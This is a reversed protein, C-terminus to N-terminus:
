RGEAVDRKLQEVTMAGMPRPAIYRTGMELPVYNVIISYGRGDRTPVPPTQLLQLLNGEETAPQEGPASRPQGYRNVNSGGRPANAHLQVAIESGQEARNYVRQDLRQAILKLAGDVGLVPGAM